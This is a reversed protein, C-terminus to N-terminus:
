AERFENWFLGFILKNLILSIEMIGTIHGFQGNYDLIVLKRNFPRKIKWQQFYYNLM